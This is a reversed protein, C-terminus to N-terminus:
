ASAALDALPSLRLAVRLWVGFALFRDAPVALDVGTLEVIQQLRYHLTTRHVHLLDAPSQDRGSRLVAGVTEFAFSEPTSLLSALAGSRCTDTAPLDGGVLAALPQIERWSLAKETRHVHVGLFAALAAHAFLRRVDALEGFESIGNGTRDPGAAFQRGAADLLLNESQGVACGAASEFVGVTCGDLEATCALSVGLDTTIFAIERFRQVDSDLHHGTPEAYSAIVAYRCGSAASGDAADALVDAPRQGALLKRIRNRLPNAAADAAKRGRRASLVDALRACYQEILEEPLVKDLDLLWLFAVNDDDNRIPFCIRAALSLKPNAPVRIPADSANRTYSTFYDRYERPIRRDLMLRVRYPDADGFHRSVVILNGDLDDVAVSQRLRGALRDVLHQAEDVLSGDM